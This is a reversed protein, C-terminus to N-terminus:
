VSIGIANTITSPVLASPLAASTSGLVIKTVKAEFTKPLPAPLSTSLQSIAIM